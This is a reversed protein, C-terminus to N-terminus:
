EWETVLALTTPCSPYSAASNFASCASSYQFHPTLAPRASNSSKPFTSSPIRTSLAGSAKSEMSLTPSAASLSSTVASDRSARATSSPSSASRNVVVASRAPPLHRAHSLPAPAQPHPGSAPLRRMPPPPRPDRGRPWRNRAFRRHAQALRRPTLPRITNRTM